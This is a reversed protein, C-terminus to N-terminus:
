GNVDRPHHLTSMESLEGGALKTKAAPLRIVYWTAPGYKAKINVSVRGVVTGNVQQLWPRLWEDLANGHVPDGDSGAVVFEIGREQLYSLPDSPLFYWIRRSGFPRWISAEPTDGFATYGIDHAGPPLLDRAPKLVDWRGRFVAYVREARELLASNPYRERLGSLIVNAPWLPRSPSLVVVVVAFLFTGMAMRHWWRARVVSQQSAGVLLAPLLLAYYPTILRSPTTAGMKAMFSLLAVYPSWLVAMRAWQQPQAQEPARNTATHGPRWIMAAAVSVVLIWTIAFGLGASDELPLEGLNTVHLRKGEFDQWRPSSVFSAAHRNIFDDSWKDVPYFTPVANQVALTVSNGIVAALPRIRAIGPDEVSAGTWDGCHRFNLVANPLFSILLSVLVVASGIAM